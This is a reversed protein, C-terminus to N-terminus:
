YNRREDRQRREQEMFVGSLNHYTITTILDVVAGFLVIGGIGALVGDSTAIGGIFSLLSITFLVATTVYGIKVYRYKRDFPDPEDARDDSTM